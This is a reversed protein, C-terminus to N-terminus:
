FSIQAESVIKRNHYIYSFGLRRNASVVCAQSPCFLHLTQIEVLPRAVLEASTGNQDVRGEELRIGETRDVAHGLSGEQMKGAERNDGVNLITVPIKM